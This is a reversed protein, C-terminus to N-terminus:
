GAPALQRATNQIPGAAAAVPPGLLLSSLFANPTGPLATSLNMQSQSAASVLAAKVEAPRALPHDSLYIAAAGAVFPAAFSTGTDYTYATDNVSPCRDAPSGKRLPKQFAELPLSLSEFYPVPSLLQQMCASLHSQHTLVDMFGFWSGGFATM